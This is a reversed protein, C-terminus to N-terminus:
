PCVLESNAKAALSTFGLVMSGGLTSPALALAGISTIVDVATFATHCGPSPPLARSATGSATPRGWFFGATSDAPDGLTFGTTSTIAVLNSNPDTDWSTITGTTFVGGGGQCENQTSSPDIGGGTAGEGPSIGTGAANLYLCSGTPSNDTPNGTNAPDGIGPDGNSPEGNNNGCTSSDASCDAGSNSPDGGSTPDGGGGGGGSGGDGGNANCNGEDDSCDDLEDLGQPDILVLPNNRVYAYRNLTQPDSLHMSGLGAPDPAPWRGQTSYQREPFDYLGAVTDQRQGTFSPDTTGSPVYTEGFPAFALDFYMSRAPTSGLRMSGLHDPHGYYLLGSPNYVAIGGGPLPLIGKQLTQGSLIALKAGSPGYAFQTYTGSRNQEVMRGLADYTANVSDVSVAKSASDWSYTHSGDSLVNGDADYAVTTGPISVFRNTTNGSTDKYVPQFTYTGSKSINGFADYSFTQSWPTGCNISGLRTLDDYAYACNQTDSANFPDTINQSQLTHNANWTLAGIESQGNVAFQYQTLRNTNSDYSFTDVDGSGYTVSTALSAANFVTNTVPNQGSSASVTYSRGEGDVGFTFSPLGTINSGIQNPAGNAWYTASLHYFGGSNPTSQWSDSPEGRVTYGLGVDTLKTTCTSTCTYAETLRAKTNSMVQGNVTASDYVFHKAPTVAAYTGSPYTIALPRHLADYTFCTM